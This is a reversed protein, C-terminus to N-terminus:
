PVDKESRALCLKVYNAFNTFFFTYKQALNRFIM